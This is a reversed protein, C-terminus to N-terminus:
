SKQTTQIKTKGYPWHLAPGDSTSAGNLELM